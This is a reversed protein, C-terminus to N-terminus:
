SADKLKKDESVSQATELMTEAYIGYGKAGDDILVHTVAGILKGNQIIPSGSMGQLIGGAAKLLEKDTIEILLNQNNTGNIKRVNCTYLTPATGDITTIIYAKGNEVEQKLAVPIVCSTDFNEECIGYVGEYCNRLINAYKNNTIKGKLEGPSGTKAKNLSIIEASYIEGSNIKLLKGTDNDCVGHGLGCVINTAPSYFTLTGIGASSDRVWIGAKYVRSSVSKQPKFKITKTKSNREILLTLERGESKEIIESVDANSYVKQGEVSIILDGIKLGAKKAPSQYGNTTDVDTLDVVLVGKTYIKMGFPIGLPLVYIDDVVEVNAKAVPIVGFLKMEVDFKEGVNFNNSANKINKGCYTVKIPVATKVSFEDSASIKYNDNINSRAAFLVSYLAICLVFLSLSLIRFFKRM